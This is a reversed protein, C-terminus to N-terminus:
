KEDKKREGRIVERTEAESMGAKRLDKFTISELIADRAEQKTSIGQKEALECVSSFVLAVEAMLVTISGKAEIKAKNVTIM